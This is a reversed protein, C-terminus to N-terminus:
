PISRSAKKLAILCLEPEKEGVISRVKVQFPAASDAESRYKATNAKQHPSNALKIAEWCRIDGQSTIACAHIQGVAIEVPIDGALAEAILLENKVMSSNGAGFVNTGGVCRISDDFAIACSHDTGTALKEWGTGCSSGVICRECIRDNQSSPARIESEGEACLPAWTTCYQSSGGPSFSGDPCPSCLEATELFEGPACPGSPETCSETSPDCDPDIPSSSTLPNTGGEGGTAGTGTSSQRDKPACAFCLSLLLILLLIRM